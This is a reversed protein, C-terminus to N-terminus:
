RRALKPPSAESRRSAPTDRRISSPMTTAAAAPLLAASAANGAHYRATFQTLGLKAKGYAIVATM